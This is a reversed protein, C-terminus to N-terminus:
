LKKKNMLKMSFLYATVALLLSSAIALGLAKLEMTGEVLSLNEGILQIPNYAQLPEVINVLYLVIIVGITFLLSAMSGDFLTSGLLIIASFFVVFVLFPILGAVIHPSDNDPFYVATYIATIFFSLLIASLSLIMMMIFKSSIIASRNLGKTVLNVLSGKRIEGNVSGCFFVALIYIGIQTLNKYFQMWSDLSTPEPLTINLESGFSSLIEPTLIAILPSILGFLVFVTLILILRKTRWVELGEKKLFITVDKM